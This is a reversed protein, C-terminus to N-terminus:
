ALFYKLMGEFTSHFPETLKVLSSGISFGKDVNEKATLPVTAVKEGDYKLIANGIVEGRKINASIIEPVDYDLTLLKEDEGKLMPFILDNEAGIHVAGKKGDRVYVVKEVNDKDARHIKEVQEFGYDLLKQADIFRTDMDKSHMVVAILEVDGHRASATMCGGASLTYGTKIGNIGEYKNLLENTNMAEIKQGDPKIWHITAYLTGVIERFEDSKMCYAAIKAIDRATSTHDPDPLGNPNAFHTNTCGLESVKKNMMDVFTKVDGGVTEAAAIAGGNDSVLMTGLLLDHASIIDGEALHLDSYEAAAVDRSIKIETEPSLNEIALICTLMKTMSAPPYIKDANKEYVVRGTSSEIVIVSDSYLIPEESEASVTVSFIWTCLFVIKVFFNKM